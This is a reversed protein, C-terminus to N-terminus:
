CGPWPSIAHMGDEVNDADDDDNEYDEPQGAEGSHTKCGGNGNAVHHPM